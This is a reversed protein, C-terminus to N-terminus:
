LDVGEIILGDASAADIVGTVYRPEILLASCWFQADHPATVNLWVAAQVTNPWLLALSGHSELTFDSIYAPVRHAGKSM